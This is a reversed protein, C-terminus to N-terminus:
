AKIIERLLAMNSNLKENIGTQKSLMAQMGEVTKTLKEIKSVSDM